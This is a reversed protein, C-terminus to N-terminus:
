KSEGTPLEVEEGWVYKAFWQWNHWTAALREKPKTIGHGFGKYVVLEAPVNQDRLGQLLEYANPIPVRQDFEGHQILTPTKANKINTMPSTKRYIEENDWPNAKLYQITFPHIDTNVYYTMWNSIGAGVSVAKFRDTNTTLFASIYGGQSWGMVGMRTTDILNSASLNDVGSLVDWADGVGLNEVNLSRFAEGYGASGRYNPQLVLCGKNLWQVIPYVYGPVPSPTDIGTPGGHIVVMLPYKKTPDYDVPKHLVGEILAGDKSRWVVVESQSVKWNEIQKTLNTVKKAAPKQVNSVWIENLQNGNRANIALKEGTQSFSVGTVMEPFGKLITFTGDKPEIRYLHRQTKQWFLGYIGKPNWTLGSPNEDLNSAIQRSNKSGVDIVFIKSNTYFNSVTDDVYSTYLLQKSDPSWDQFSDASPNQVLIQSQGSELDLISIDSKAFSNILPNPQHNFAVMKGDPSVKFGNVNFDGETLRKPKARTICGNATKLSDASEYCPLESPNPQNPDFAIEWLHTLSYDKDDMFFGGYRSEIKKKSPDDKERKAFIMRKGDPHWQFASIGEEEETIVISEGGNLRIAHIQTKNGKDALFALWKGDPSFAPAFSSNKPNNTVQFPDSGNKVLWIETDFRNEKWDSAQQTFAVLDGNPSMVVAGVSRLSIVEEFTPDKKENQASVQVTFALVFAALLFYKM